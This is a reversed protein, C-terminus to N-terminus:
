AAEGRRLELPIGTEVVLTAIQLGGSNELEAQAVRERLSIVESMLEYLSSHRKGHPTPTHTDDIRTEPAM